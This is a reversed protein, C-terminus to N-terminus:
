FYITDPSTSRDSEPHVLPADADAAAPATKGPHRLAIIDHLMKSGRSVTPRGEVEAIISENDLDDINFLFVAPHRRLKKQRGRLLEPYNHIRREALTEDALIRADTAIPVDDKEYLHFGSALITIKVREGLSPDTALGWKTEVDSRFKAMFNDVEGVEEMRLTHDPDPNTTIALVIRRSRYVDNNNLLPSYLANELAKTVRGDGEGYGTSIVAVGGDTLVNCVDRFDLGVRGHMGIIEVICRVATTLTDDAKKFANLISLSSYIQRLRENNIVLLADVEQALADLGDLAKDIQREGEFLFPITVVGITLIGRRKAERAIIPSAGTGTGGGMGATVFLMKVNEDIAANIAEVSAEAYERGREPRGGAGLGPGLQLKDPVAADELAKGDTNCVLFRVGAIGERYMQCVANGGGGGVGVAMIISPTSGSETPEVLLTQEDNM